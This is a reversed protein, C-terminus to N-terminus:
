LRHHLFAVARPSTSIIFLSIIKFTINSYAFLIYIILSHCLSYHLNQHPCNGTAAYTSGYGPHCIPFCSRNLISLNNM